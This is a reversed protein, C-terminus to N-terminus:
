ADTDTLAAAIRLLAAQYYRDGQTRAQERMWGAAITAPDNERRKGSVLLSCSLALDLASQFLNTAERRTADPLGTPDGRDREAQVMIAQRMPLSLGATWPAAWSPSGDCARELKWGSDMLTEADQADIAAQLKSM